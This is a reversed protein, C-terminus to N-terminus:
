NTLYLFGNWATRCKERAQFIPFYGMVTWHIIIKGATIKRHLGKKKSKLERIRKRHIRSNVGVLV